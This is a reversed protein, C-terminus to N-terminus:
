TAALAMRILASLSKSGTKRMIAARHNDVTRQSIGLDAAINKSPHGALVLELIQRQRTTLSAIRLAAKERCESLKAIDPTQHLAREISVLLDVHSIPKEVFDVAGAKMAQVAIPVAGSGTIVITPLQHGQAKLREILQVGSMGPMMVDVVLCGGRGPRYAGLFAPGDAFLEVSYGNEQLLDRMAERISRDDDVVFVTSSADGQLRLPLQQIGEPAASSPKALLRQALRTLEKARVPKNLHVCGHQAVERLSNTSIDGTLVIGPIAHQLQKHLRAMLELGNLGKPLNYDAVILDPVTQAALELAKHGDAAVLTRHGDDDFLLQLMELVAPDDEVILITGRPPTSEPIKDQPLVPLDMAEPRGLPVEVTFVSGAGVRSRVDIRHGLLDALRQVIALGLGLGKSRERAPNDLQHFEEFIAHLELEPIGPGTDWVEIRLKDGRRRCGLLLKGETTYKVANSLLNRMIQELLRPDSRVTLSSHVVRWSLSNTETHYTFETRMEELLRNIPFDIIAPRVIGAELQNIDLLKDLLSSMTRVTEDLRHVLKLASEDRVRKELMGQLLSITQLPQRLDHSAAALFRSKGINAREAESKAAELAKGERKVDTADLVAVLIKRGESPEERLVRASMLFTRRGLSPLELEVELDNITTGRVQISGLFDRLPPVDLHDAAAVLHQGILQEPKVSFVSHFSRSASVVRLEEDLVVLPQRITAIISDLYNRAAQIEREAAKVESIGAFTIIVGQIQGSESRYPLVGRMYWAGDEARVERRVPAPSTLVMRADSFLDSDEFRCTLDRLPRGVDSAIINFLSRVAPTFFRINLDADLFLTAVDTSNLINQLDNSTARQQEVTEHLQSNLATLEENLSQLEEKSTELEENTSQFEENVSMAEENIAKQEENAIELDRIAGHLDERTAELEQELEVVRSTDAASEVPQFPRPGPAADDVFSVLLLGKGNSEVPLATISVCILGGNHKVHAGTVTVRARDEKAHQIASRLKARLEERAMALVDRTGEGSAVKLYRDVAGFYYLGEYKDNILVSAPAYAELLAKQSVEGFGPRREATQGALGKARLRGTIKTGAPFEVEGPRSRGIHRYIRHKKSIAEFRDSVGGITESSGLFLVGGERLAFHFLSLVKRQAEPSLYILLNRCSILDLRSFPADTLLNQGTFVVMERLERVVQYHHDEKTFFRALRAPTVDGAISEPYIGNRAFAVCDADVDSAFVQLKISRQATAIQELFLMAISYAEEGTSCGPVWIRLTRDLTQRHVLDPIVTEALLDFAAADRFFHTVNILLDKALLARESGDERLVQLYCVSSDLGAMAMRREIRRQLTGQKYLSFDHQTKASLLDIIGTFANQVNGPSPADTGRTKVYTQRGYRVLAQPIKAVKLILDADGTMIASRPMGDFAAEEPDQVIVLGGKEKVAKLGLSGDTGTGSLIACIAREGCEEALSRLFFDFPMRTGHRELPKSLRLTGGEIALYRGPPILYAHDRHLHMGDAAQLVKMPTHGALLDAMMSEHKPDLHQILVFAMGSNPPLADFLRKFADLGGASAGLGVVPFDVSAHRPLACESPQPRAQGAKRASRGAM